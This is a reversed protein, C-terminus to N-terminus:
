STSKYERGARPSDKKNGRKNGKIYYFRVRTINKYKILLAQNKHIIHYNGTNLSLAYVHLTNEECIDDGVRM